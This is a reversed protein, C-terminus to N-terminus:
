FKMFNCKFIEKQKGFESKQDSTLQQINFFCEGGNSLCVFENNTMAAFNHEFNAISVNEGREVLFLWFSFEDNTEACM